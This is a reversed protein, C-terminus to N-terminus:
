RTRTLNPSAAAASSATAACDRRGPAPEAPEAKAPSPEESAPEAAKAEEPQEADTEEPGAEAAEAEAKAQEEAAKEAAAAEDVTWSAYRNAIYEAAGLWEELTASWGRKLLVPLSTRGVEALLPFNQEYNKLEAADAARQGLKRETRAM